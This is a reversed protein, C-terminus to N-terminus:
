CHEGGPPSSLWCGDWGWGGRMGAGRAMGAEKGPVSQCMGCPEDGRGAGGEDMQKRATVHRELHVQLGVQGAHTILHPPPSFPLIVQQYLCHGWVLTRPPCRRSQEESADSLSPFATVVSCLPSSFLKATQQESCSGPGPLLLSPICSFCCESPFAYCLVSYSPLFTPLECIM